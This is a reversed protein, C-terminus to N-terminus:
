DDNCYDQCCRNHSSRVAKEWLAVAMERDIVRCMKERQVDREWELQARQEAARSAVV